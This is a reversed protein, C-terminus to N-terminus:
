GVELPDGAPRRGNGAALGRLRAAVRHVFLALLVVLLPEITFRFRNNEGLEMANTLVTVYVINFAIFVLLGVTPADLNERRLEEVVVSAAHFLLLPLGLLVLLCTRGVRGCMGIECLDRYRGLPALDDALRRDETVPRLYRRLASVLGRAYVAPEARVVAVEDRLYRRSLDVYAIHNFNSGGTSKRPRDLVPIGLPPPLDVIGRYRELPGFSDLQALRTAIGERALRKREPPPLTQLTIRSLNMGLWTSGAFSGYLWENKAYWLVCLLAPVAAVALTRRWADRRLVLVLALIALLWAVHFYSRLLVMAGLLGFCAGGDRPRGHALYAHLLPAAACLLGAEFIPYFLFGEYAIAAPSLAFVFAALGSVLAPVGLARAAFFISLTTAAGVLLQVVQFVTGAESGGLKLGLGLYLNFLPPQGHSYWLSRALDHRLLDPDNDQWLKAFQSGDFRIGLGHLVLRSVVFGLVLALPVTARPRRM